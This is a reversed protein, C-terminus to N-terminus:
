LYTRGEERLQSSLYVGRTLTLTHSRSEKGSFRSMEWTTQKWKRLPDLGQKMVSHRGPGIREVSGKIVLDWVERSAQLYIERQIRYM